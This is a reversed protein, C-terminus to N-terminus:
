VNLLKQKNKLSILLLEVIFQSSLIAYVDVVHSIVVCHLTKIRLELAIIAIISLILITDLWVM